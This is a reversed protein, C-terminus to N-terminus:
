DNYAHMVGVSSRSAAGEVIREQSAAVRVVVTFVNALSLSHAPSGDLLVGVVTGIIEHLCVAFLKHTVV